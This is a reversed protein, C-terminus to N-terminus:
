KKYRVYINDIRATGEDKDYEYNVSVGIDSHDSQYETDISDHFIHLSAPEGLRDVVDQITSQSTIGQYNFDGEKQTSYYISLGTIKAQDVDEGTVDFSLAVRTDGKNMWLTQNKYSNAELAEGEKFSWGNKKADGFTTQNVTFTTSDVQISPSLDYVPSNVNTLSTTYYEGFKEYTKGGEYYSPFVYHNEDVSSFLFDASSQFTKANSDKEQVKIKSSSVSSSQSSSSESKSEQSLTGISVILFLSLFSLIVLLCILLPFRDKERPTEYYRNVFVSLAIVAVTTVVLFISQGTSYNSWWYTRYKIFVFYACVVGILFLIGSWVEAIRKRKLLLAVKAKAQTDSAASPSASKVASASSPSSVRVAERPSSSSKGKGAFAASDIADSFSSFSPAYGKYQASSSSSSKASSNNSSSSPSSEQNPSASSRIVVRKMPAQENNQAGGVRKPSEKKQRDVFGSNGASGSAYSGKADNPDAVQTEYPDPHLAKDILQKLETMSKCRDKKRVALGYMLVNELAPPIKIGMQSPRPLTDEVLRNLADVPVKGTVCRYVTACLAYVDTWPGQDSNKRYQEEPAYGAKLLVSMSRESDIYEKASGFDMLKVDGNRVIMINDPSVDRHIVGSEHIRELVNIVPMLKTFANEATMVGHSKLHDRLTEGELYEMVLYATHNEELYDTVIVIGSEGSFKALTMAESLFRQKGHEFVDSQNTAIVEGSNEATTNRYSLGHPFYEKVAVRKDLKQDIALYTIGFGGEGLVSLVRYRGGIVTGSPLHHPQFPIVNGVHCYPCITVDGKDRKCNNCIMFSGEIRSTVKETIIM